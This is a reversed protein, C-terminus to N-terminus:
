TCVQFFYFMNGIFITIVAKCVLVYCRNYSRKDKMYLNDCLYYSRELVFLLVPLLIVNHPKHLLSSILLSTTLNSGLLEVLNNAKLDYDGFHKRKCFVNRYNILATTFVSIWFIILVLSNHQNWLRYLLVCTLSSLCTLMQIRSNYSKLRWLIFLLAKFIFAYM